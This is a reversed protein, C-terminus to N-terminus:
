PAPLFEDSLLRGTTRDFVLRHADTSGGDIGEAGAKERLIWLTTVEATVEIRDDTTSTSTAQSSVRVDELLLGAFSERSARLSQAVVPDECQGTNWYSASQQDYRTQLAQSDVAPATPQGSMASLGFTALLAVGLLVVVVKTWRGYV